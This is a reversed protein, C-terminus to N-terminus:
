RYYKNLNRFVKLPKNTCFSSPYLTMNGLDIFKSLLEPEYLSVKYKKGKKSKLFPHFGAGFALKDHNDIKNMLYKYDINREKSRGIFNIYPLLVFHSMASEFENFIDLFYDISEKDSIIIHFNVEINKLNLLEKVAPYWYKKLHPHTSVAVGGCYKETINLIDQKYDKEIWMGNTTYSPLIDLNYVNEM